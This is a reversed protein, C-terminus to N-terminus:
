DGLGLTQDAQLVLGAGAARRHKRVGIRRGESAPRHRGMVRYAQGRLYLV